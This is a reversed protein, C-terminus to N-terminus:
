PEVLQEIHIELTEAIRALTSTRLNAHPKEMQSYAAQTIGLREAMESQKLGKYERWARVRSKEDIVTKRVVEHPITLERDRREILDTYEDYPIVAFMPKGDHNIIQHDTHEKM